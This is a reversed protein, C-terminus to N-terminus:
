SYSKATATAGIYSSLPFAVFVVDNGERDMNWGGYDGASGSSEAYNEQWFHSSM